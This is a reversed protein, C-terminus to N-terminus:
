PTLEVVETAAPLRRVFPDLALLVEPLDARAVMAEDYTPHLSHILAFWPRGQFTGERYYVPRPLDDRNAFALMRDYDFYGVLQLAYPRNAVQIVKEERPSAEASPEAAPPETADPPPAAAPTPDVTAPPAAAEPATAEESETSPVTAARQPQAVVPPAALRARLEALEETLRQQEGVLQARDSVLRSIESATTDARTPAAALEAVADSLTNLRARVRALQEASAVDAPLTQVVPTSPKTAVQWYLLVLAVIVLAAFTLMTWRTTHTHRRLRAAVEEEQGQRARQLLVATRRRDDDVDAIREILSREIEDLRAQLAAVSAALGRTATDAPGDDAEPSSSASTPRTTREIPDETEPGAGTDADGFTGGNKHEM